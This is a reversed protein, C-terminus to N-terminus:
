TSFHVIIPYIAMAIAKSTSLSRPRETVGVKRKLFLDYNCNDVCLTWFHVFFDIDSPLFFYRNSDVHCRIRGDHFAFRTFSHDSFAFKNKLFRVLQSFESLLDM